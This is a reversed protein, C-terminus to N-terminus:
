EHAIKGAAAQVANSKQLTTPPSLRSCLFQINEHRSGYLIERRRARESARRHFNTGEFVESFHALLVFFPCVHQLSLYTAEFWCFFVNCVTSYRRSSIMLYITGDLGVRPWVLNARGTREM